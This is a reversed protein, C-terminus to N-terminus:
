NTKRLPTWDGSQIFSAWYFPHSRDRQRRNDGSTLEISRRSAKKRDQRSSLMQLQVRRLAETRGVGARLLRYYGVMLDKTAADDVKWLSIVQSEAGALMLARRLGYVGEGNRIEGVGTECASLVVIQTGWLDLASAELATLIGDEGNGGHRYNAGALVLGSRLLPNEENMPRNVSEKEQISGEDALFFGHTAVHLVSPGKVSKLAEETARMKTLVMAKPFIHKLASAEAATGPLDKFMMDSLAASRRSDKTKSETILEDFAPDAIIVARQTSAVHGKLRLLDRGSTLYTIRLSEVLYHNHEDILSNFPILNLAGDCSLFVNKKDGILKRIPHMVQEDFQRAAERVESGPNSLLARLSSVHKDIEAAEGLEVWSPPGSPQVVYAVYRVPATADRKTLALPNFPRYTAIEVLVSDAPLADQISKLTIPQSQIRFEGSRESIQAELDRAGRELQALNTQYEDVNQSGPGSLVAASLKARTSALQELLKRDAPESRRRLNELSDTLADLIRGKRRLITTAALSAADDNRPASRVHLTTTIDAEIDLSDMYLRKQHESGSAIILALNRERIENSQRQLEIAQPIDGKVQYMIAFSELANAFKPHQPGLSKELVKLAQQYLPEARSFDGQLLYLVALNQSTNAILSNNPPLVKQQIELARRYLPEARVLQGQEQYLVALNNFLNAIAQHDETGLVEKFIDLAKLFLKEAEAYNKKDKYLLALNNLSQAVAPHRPGLKGERIVLARKLLTEAEEYNGVTQFLGALSNLSNAVVLDDPGLTSERIKLSGKFLPEAKTYNGLAFHLSALNFMSDAILLDTPSLYRQRIALSETAPNLAPEYRAEAFMRVVEDDIRSADLLRIYRLVQEEDTKSASRIEEVVLDYLGPAATAELSGVELKYKGSENAIWKVPEPGDTGNPSDVKLLQKGDPALLKVVVDIGRQMVVANFYQGKQLDLRYLNVDGGNLKKEIREGQKLPSENRMEEPAQSVSSATPLQASIRVAFTATLFLETVILLVPQTHHSSLRPLM